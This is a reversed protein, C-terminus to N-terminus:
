LKFFFDNNAIKNNNERCYEFYKDELFSCNVSHVEFAILYCIYFALSIRL